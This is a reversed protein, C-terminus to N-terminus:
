LIFGIFSIGRSCMFVIIALPIAPTEAKAQKLYQRVNIGCANTTMNIYVLTNQVESREQNRRLEDILHNSYKAIGTHKTPTSIITNFLPVGLTM